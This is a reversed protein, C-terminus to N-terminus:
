GLASEIFICAHCALMSILKEDEETFAIVKGDPDKKNTMEVIGLLSGDSGIVPCMLASKVHLGAYKDFKGSRVGYAAMDPINLVKRTEAVKGKVGTPRLPLRIGEKGKLVFNSIFSCFEDFNLGVPSRPRLETLIETVFADSSNRKIQKLGYKIDERSILGDDDRDWHNFAELLLKKSPTKGMNAPTTVYQGGQEVMWLACWEAKVTTQGHAMVTDFLTSLEAIRKAREAKDLDMFLLSTMGLLCGCIVGCVAGTLGVYKVFRLQLQKETLGSPPLGLKVAIGEIVGGFLVGSVDSFVQGIAAATLTALGLSVGITNDIMDGAQIMVFNDMM